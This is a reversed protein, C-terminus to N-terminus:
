YQRFYRKLDTPQQCDKWYTEAEKDLVTLPKRGLLRMILGIPLITLIYMLLTSVFSIVAEIVAALTHWVIYLVRGVPSSALTSLCVLTGFIAFAGFVWFNWTDATWYIIGTWILGVIPMGIIMTLAFKKLESGTPNKNVTNM